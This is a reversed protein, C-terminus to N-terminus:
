MGVIALSQTDLADKRVFLCLVLVQLEDLGLEEAVRHDQIADDLQGLPVIHAIM